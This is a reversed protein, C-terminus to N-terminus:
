LTTEFYKMRIDEGAHMGKGEEFVVGDRVHGGICELKYGDKCFHLSKGLAENKDEKNRM